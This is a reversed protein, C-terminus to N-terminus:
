HNKQPDIAIIWWQMPKARAVTVTALSCSQASRLLKIFHNLSLIHLVFTYVGDGAYCSMTSIRIPVFRYWVLYATICMHVVKYIM